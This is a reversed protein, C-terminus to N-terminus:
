RSLVLWIRKIENKYHSEGKERLSLTDNMVQREKKNQFASAPPYSHGECFCRVKQASRSRTM